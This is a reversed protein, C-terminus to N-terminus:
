DIYPRPPFSFRGVFPICGDQLNATEMEMRLDHFNRVPQILSEMDKLLRIDAPSVLAWTQQLRTLDVSSLAIAIQLMTSYNCIRRAHAAIHIFKTITRSREHIDETLIVESLVWKVGLNFRGVVLDIGKQGQESLFQVWDTALPSGSSWKMEVLDKWDIEDLAAKEVITLQQALVQSDCALIFSVHAPQHPEQLQRSQVANESARLVDTSLQQTDVVRDIGRERGRQRPSPDPTLPQAQFQLTARKTSVTTLNPRPITIPPSPPHALPHSPIDLASIPLSRSERMASSTSSTSSNAAEVAERKDIVDVSLESSLESFDDDGSDFKEIDPTRPLSSGQPIRRISDTKEVIQISLLSSDREHGKDINDFPPQPMVNDLPVSSLIPRKMSDDSLGRELLPISNYSDESEATSEPYLHSTLHKEREFPPLIDSTVDTQRHETRETNSLSQGIIGQHHHLQNEAHDDADRDEESDPPDEATAPPQKPWKGELKLLTSEIGGDDDDPIRSFEAVAAEFSPRMHQSSHTHILSFSPATSPPRAESVSVHDQDIHRISTIASGTLSSDSAASRPRPHMELDHVNQTKRLDGGPRRRLMRGLPREMDDQIQMSSVSAAIESDAEHWYKTMGSQYSAYKRLRSPVSDSKRSSISGKSVSPSLHLQTTQSSITMTGPSSPANAIPTRDLSDARNSSRNSQTISLLEGDSQEVEVPDNDVPSWGLAGSMVPLDLGTDDVIVISKSGTTLHSVPRQHEPPVAQSLGYAYSDFEHTQPHDVQNPFSQHTPPEVHLGLVERYRKIVQESLLDIRLSSKSITPIRRDRYTDPGFAVNIPLAATKGRLSASDMNGAQSIVGQGGQRGHLVRRISGIITRVSPSSGSGRGNPEQRGLSAILTTPSPPAIMEVFPEVPPLLDGRILGGAYPVGAYPITRVFAYGQGDLNAQSLPARDDRVSDSFSGSRKHDHVPQRWGAVSVPSRPNSPSSLKAPMPIPHPIIRSGSLPSSTRKSSKAPFSCSVAQESRDSVPSVPLSRATGASVHRRHSVRRPEKHTPPPSVHSEMTQLTPFIINMDGVSIRDGDRSGAIFGPVVPSDPNVLDPYDWYLLCRGHWCRKLDVIIKIDSTGGSNRAKVDEYIANIRECFQVRLDHSMVFDDLFYNLIWHRLAAFTRIRIIRGDDQLRNIAWQLRAMLLSLLNSSSLYSRFTLFFDSVLEYDMFSESSIQAVIRAPTAASIDRTGPLYRVVSPADMDLMLADFISPEIPEKLKYFASKQTSTSTRSWPNYISAAAQGSFVSMAASLERGPRTWEATSSLPPIQLSNANGKVVISSRANDSVSTRTYVSSRLIPIGEANFQPTGLRYHPIPIELVPATTDEISEPPDDFRDIVIRFEGRQKATSSQEHEAVTSFSRSRQHRGAAAASEAAGWSQDEDVNENHVFSTQLESLQSTSWISHRPDRGEDSRRAPRLHANSPATAQPNPALPLRGRTLTSDVM